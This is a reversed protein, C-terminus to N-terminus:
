KPSGAPMTPCRASATWPSALLSPPFCALRQWLWATATHHHYPQNICSSLFCPTFPLNLLHPRLFFLLFCLDFLPQPYNGCYFCFVIFRGYNRRMHCWVDCRCICHEGFVHVFSTRTASPSPLSCWRPWSSSRSSPPCTASPWAMFSTPRLAATRARARWSSVLFFYYCHYM